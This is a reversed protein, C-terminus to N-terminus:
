LLSSPELRGAFMFDERCREETSKTNKWDLMAEDWEGGVREGLGRVRMGARGLALVRVRVQGRIGVEVRGRAVKGVMTMDRTFTGRRSNSGRGEIARRMVLLLVM